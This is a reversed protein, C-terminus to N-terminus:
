RTITQSIESKRFSETPKNCPAVSTSNGYQSWESHHQLANGRFNPLPQEAKSVKSLNNATSSTQQTMKDVSELLDMTKLTTQFEQWAPSHQQFGPLVKFYITKVLKASFDDMVHRM